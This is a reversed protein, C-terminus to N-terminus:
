PLLKEFFNKLTVAWGQKKTSKKESKVVKQQVTESHESFNTETQSTDNKVEAAMLKEAMTITEPEAQNTGRKAMEQDVIEFYRLAEAKSLNRELRINWITGEDKAVSDKVTQWTAGKVPATLGFLIIDVLLSFLAIKKKSM